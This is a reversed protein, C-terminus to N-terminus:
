TPWAPGHGEIFTLPQQAPAQRYFHPTLPRAPWGISTLPKPNVPGPGVRKPLGEPAQPALREHVNYAHVQHQM